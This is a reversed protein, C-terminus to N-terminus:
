ELKKRIDRTSGSRMMRPKILSGIRVEEQHNEKEAHDIVYKCTTLNPLGGTKCKKLWGKWHKFGRLTFIKEACVIDDQIDDDLFDNCHKNCIGGPRFASCWEDSSIQFIGYSYSAKHGPGTKLSTNFNGDNQMVCVFNSIFTRDINATSLEKAAQCKTLIRASAQQCTLYCALALLVITTKQSLM